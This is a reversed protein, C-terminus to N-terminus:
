GGAAAGAVMSRPPGRGDAPVGQADTTNRLGATAKSSHGRSLKDPTSQDREWCAPGRARGILMVGGATFPVNAPNTLSWNPPAFAHVMPGPECLQRPLFNEGSSAAPSEVITASAPTGAGPSSAMAM